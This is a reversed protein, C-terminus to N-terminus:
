WHGEYATYKPIM